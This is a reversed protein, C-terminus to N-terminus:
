FKSVPTTGTNGKLYFTNGTRYQQTKHCEQGTGLLFLIAFHLTLAKSFEPCMVPPIIIIDLTSLFYHELAAKPSTSKAILRTFETRLRGSLCTFNKPSNLNCFFQSTMEAGWFTKPALQFSTQALIISGEAQRFPLSQFHSEKYGSIQLIDEYNSAQAHMYKILIDSYILDSM